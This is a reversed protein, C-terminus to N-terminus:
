CPPLLSQPDPDPCRVSRPHTLSRLPTKFHAQQSCGPAALSPCEQRSLWMPLLGSTLPHWTGEVHPIRPTLPYPLLPAPLLPPLSPVASCVAPISGPVSALGAMFPSALPPSWAGLERPGRFEKGCLVESRQPPVRLPSTSGPYERAVRVVQSVLVWPCLGLSAAVRSPGSLLWAM